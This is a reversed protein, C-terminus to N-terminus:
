GRQFDPNVDLGYEIIYHTYHRALFDLGVNVMYGASHTFQPVDQFRM